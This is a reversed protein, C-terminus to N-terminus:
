MAIFAWAVHGHMMCRSDPEGRCFTCRMPPRGALIWRRLHEPPQPEEEEEAEEEEEGGEDEVQEVEDFGELRLAIGWRVFTLALTLRRGRFLRNAIAAQGRRRPCLGFM